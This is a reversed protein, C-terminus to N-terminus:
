FNRRLRRDVLDICESNFSVFFDKYHKLFEVLDQVSGELLMYSFQEYIANLNAPIRKYTEEVPPITLLGTLLELWIFPPQTGHQLGATKYGTGLEELEILFPRISL